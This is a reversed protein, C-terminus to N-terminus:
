VSFDKKKFIAFASFYLVNAIVLLAALMIYATTEGNILGHTDFLTFITFYKLVELEGGMNVLMQIMFFLIPLGAGVLVAHKTENFLCSALFAIGGLTLHFLLLGVNLILFGRIALEGPFMITSTLYMLITAYLVLLSIWTGLVKVQTFIIKERNNPSALLYAMSGRDAHSVVLHNAVIIFFIMPFIVLIFGYLYAVLFANLSTIDGSMGMAAMVEPMMEYFEELAGSLEPDYMSIVITIYMTVIGFFILSTKWHSKLGQKYLSWNIM